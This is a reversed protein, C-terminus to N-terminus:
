REGDRPEPRLVFREVELAFVLDSLAEEVEIRELAYVDSRPGAFANRSTSAAEYGAERVITKVEPTLYREAGGNPYSFMTVPGDIESELRQRAAILEARADAPGANPLNPHTMTHSGITMGLRRMERVADWTLMVRATPPADEALRRLQARLEERVPIPHAKFTKTLRNVATARGAATSVDVDVVVDGARLTIRDARVARVLHRLEAPWFPADGHLCGATIYFTATAGYRALTQAAGLNDAYGDDFTIVVANRPLPETARIRAAADELRLVAYHATLYRVHTEFADPSICIGPDAYASGEPGCVAHYRLIALGRSPALTRLASYGGTHLLARKVLPAAGSRMRQVATPRHAMTGSM